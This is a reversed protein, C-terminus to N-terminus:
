QNKFSEYTYSTNNVMKKQVDNIVFRTGEFLDLKSLSNIVVWKLSKTEKKNLTLIGGIPIAVYAFDLHYHSAVKSREPILQEFFYEPPLLWKSDSVRTPEKHIFSVLKIELGTEEKVERLAAENPNENPEIHGGPIMWKNFKKHHILLVENQFTEKNKRLVIVSTTYHKFM